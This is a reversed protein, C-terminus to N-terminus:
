QKNQISEISDAMLEAATNYELQCAIELLSEFDIDFALKKLAVNSKMVFGAKYKPIM